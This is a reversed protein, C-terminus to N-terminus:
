AGCCLRHEPIVFTVLAVFPFVIKRSLALETASREEATGGITAGPPDISRNEPLV